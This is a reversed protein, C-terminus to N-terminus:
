APIIRVGKGGKPKPPYPTTEVVAGIGRSQPISPTSSPKETSVSLSTTGAAQNLRNALSEDNPAIPDTM